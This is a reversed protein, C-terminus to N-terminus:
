GSVLGPIIRWTPRREDSGNKNITSQHNSRYGGLKGYVESFLGGKRVSPNGLKEVGLRTKGLVTFGLRKRKALVEQHLGSSHDPFRIRFRIPDSQHAAPFSPPTSRLPLVRARARILLTVVQIKWSWTSYCAHFFRLITSHIMNGRHHYIPPKPGPPKPNSDPVRLYCDREYPSGLFGFWRAGFWWNVM